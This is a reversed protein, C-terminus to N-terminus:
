GEQTKDCDVDGQQRTFKGQRPAVLGFSLRVDDRAWGGM